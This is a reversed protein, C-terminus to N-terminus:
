KKKSKKKSLDSIVASVPKLKYFYKNSPVLVGELGDENDDSERSRGYRNDTTTFAFFSVVFSAGLCLLVSHFLTLHFLYSIASGIGIFVSTVSFVVVFLVALIGLMNIIYKM